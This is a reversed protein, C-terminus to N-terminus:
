FLVGAVRLSLGYLEECNRDTAVTQMRIPPERSLGCRFLFLIFRSLCMREEGRFNSSEGPDIMWGTSAVCSRFAAFASLEVRSMSLALTGSPKM